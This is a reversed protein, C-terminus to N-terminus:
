DQHRDIRFCKPALDQKGTQGQQWLWSGALCCSPFRKEQCQDIYSSSIDCFFRGILYHLTFFRRLNQVQCLVCQCSESSTWGIAKHCLIKCSPQKEEGVFLWTGTHWGGDASQQQAEQRQFPKRPKYFTLKYNIKYKQFKIQKKRRLKSSLHSFSLYKQIEAASYDPMWRRYFHCKMDILLTLLIPNLIIRFSSVNYNSCLIHRLCM